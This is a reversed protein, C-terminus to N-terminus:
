LRLSRLRHLTPTSGDTLTITKTTSFGGCLAQYIVATNPSAGDGPPSAPRINDPQYESADDLGTVNAINGGSTDTVSPDAANSRYTKGQYRYTNIQVHFAQEAQAITGSVKIYFNNEAVDEIAFGHATLFNSVSKVEQATPSYSANFQSQSLWQHYNSNGPAYLDHLQKQLQGENHLKLWVTLDITQTADAAGLNQAKSVWGPTNGSIKISNGSGAIAYVFHASTGAVIALIAM